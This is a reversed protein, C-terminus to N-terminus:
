GFQHPFAAHAVVAFPGALMAAAVVGIVVASIAQARHDVATASNRRLLLLAASGPVVSIAMVPYYGYTYTGVAARGTYHQLFLVDLRWYLVAAVASIALPLATALLRRVAATDARQGLHRSLRRGAPRAVVATLPGITWGALYAFAPAVGAGALALFTASVTVREVLLARVEDPPHTVRLGVRMGAAVSQSVAGSTALVVLGVRAWT